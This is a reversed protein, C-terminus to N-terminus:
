QPPEPEQDTALSRVYATLQWIQEAPLRTGWAPMGHARGGAISDFIRGPDSGYIWDPDRLSPGMGGGAHGGHCGSCNYDVFLRRGQQLAVKDGELPNTAPAPQRGGPIPGVTQASPGRPPAARALQVDPSRRCALSGAVSAVVALALRRSAPM